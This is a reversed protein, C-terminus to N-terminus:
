AIWRRHDERRRTRPYRAIDDGHAARNPEAALMRVNRGMMEDGRCGFIDETARNVTQIIGTDDIAIVADVVNKLISSRIRDGATALASVGSKKEM